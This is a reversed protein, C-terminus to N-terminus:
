AQVNETERGADHRPVLTFRVFVAERRSDALVSSANKGAVAFFIVDHRIRTVTLSVNGIFVCRVPRGVKRIM